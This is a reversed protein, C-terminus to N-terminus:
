AHIENVKTQIESATFGTKRKIFASFTAPSDFGLEYAISKHNKDGFLLMRKAELIVRKHIVQLPSIGLHHKSLTALKKESIALETSYYSVRQQKKFDRELLILFDTFPNNTDQEVKSPSRESFLSFLLGQLLHRVADNDSMSHAHDRVVEVLSKVREYMAEDNEFLLGSNGFWLRKDLLRQLNGSLLSSAQFQVVDGYSGAERRLLHVQGPYIIFCSHSHVEYNVFDILNQGGGKKFLIIEFYSHRHKKTFDYHNKHEIDRVYVPFRESELNHTKIIEKAM